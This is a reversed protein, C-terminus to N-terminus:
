RLYKPAPSPNFAAGDFPSVECTFSSAENTPGSGSYRPIKPYACLPRTMQVGNAPDDGVYKTAIFRDPAIGGEVWRQLAIMASRSGDSSLPDASGADDVGFRTPGAGGSGHNLSPVMFLRYYDQTRQLARTASKHQEMEHAITRKYQNISDQPPIIPDAWGHTRLLKGGRSKFADLNPNNANVIDVLVSDVVETQPGFDYGISTWTLGFVWKFLSAFLPEHLLGQKYWGDTPDGEAGMAYGPFILENTSSRTGAYIKRAAEVQDAHLCDAAKTAVCQLVGPDFDCGRPDTLFGDGAVGGSKVACAAVVADTLLKADAESFRSNLSANLANYNWVFSTHLHTRNAAPAAALIGDYDEPYIQASRMAQQGGTSGGKFYSWKPGMGYHAKMLSKSVTTMLHTARGGWDIWRQPQGVLVDANLINSPTTGMDTTAVAFGAKVSPMSSSMILDVTGAGAFGGNGLGLFRGNWNEPSPLRVEIDIASGPVPAALARVKCYSPDSATAPVLVAAAVQAGEIPQTLLGVCSLAPAAAPLLSAGLNTVSSADLLEVGTAMSVAKQPAATSTDPSGPQGGGCAGLVASISVLTVWKRAQGSTFPLAQRQIRM